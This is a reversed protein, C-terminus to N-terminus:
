LVVGILVNNALCMHVIGCFLLPVTMSSVKVLQIRALAPVDPSNFQKREIGKNSAIDSWNYKKERLIAQGIFKSNSFKGNGIAISALGHHTNEGDFNALDHDTNNGVFQLFTTECPCIVEETAYHIVINQKYRIM